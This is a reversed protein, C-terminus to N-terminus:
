EETDGATPQDAQLQVSPLGTHDIDPLGLASLTDEPDFGVNILETAMQVKIQTEAINAAGLDVNALPVRYSDGGEVAPLDELRHITNINLFGAQIGQSYAAYRSQLDGRQLGDMNIRLFAGGPLLRSLAEEIKFVYPRLTSTVFDINDQEISAYARAGPTTVGLKTPPVGFARAVEEVAFRRSELLQAQEADAAIREYKAGASLVNPRHANRLGSSRKEFQDKLRDAQEETLDGPTTIIGGSLTGSGFYRAAFSELAKSIGLTEKLEDVRSTGWLAGPKRLETIHVVESAQLVTSSDIVYETLGNVNARVTVRTPDIPAIAIIEGRPDRLIRGVFNGALLLSILLQQYWDSRQVAPDPHPQDVWAPRPRYPLRDAGRRYFTDVPLTCISDSILRVAAYVVSLRMAEHVNMTVGAQTGRSMLSDSLWLSQFTIARDESSSRRLRNLM